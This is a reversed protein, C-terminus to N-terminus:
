PKWISGYLLRYPFIPILLWNFLQTRFLRPATYMYLFCPTDDPVFLCFIPHSLFIHHFLFLFCIWIRLQASNLTFSLECLNHYFFICKKKQEKAPTFRFLLSQSCSFIFFYEPGVIRCHSCGFRIPPFFFFSFFRHFIFSHSYFFWSFNMLITTICYTIANSFSVPRSFFCWFYYFFIFFLLLSIPLFLIRM